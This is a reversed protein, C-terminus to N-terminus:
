AHDVYVAAPRADDFPKAWVRDAGALNTLDSLLKNLEGQNSEPTVRYVIGRLTAAPPTTDTTFRIEINGVLAQFTIKTVDANTLQTYAGAPCTVQAQDQAM